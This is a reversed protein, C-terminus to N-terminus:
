LLTRQGLPAFRSRRNRNGGSGSDNKKRGLHIVVSFMPYLYCVPPGSEMGKHILIEGAPSFGALFSVPDGLFECSEFIM